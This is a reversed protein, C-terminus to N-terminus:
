STTHIGHLTVGDMIYFWFSQAETCRCTHTHCSSVQASAEQVATTQAGDLYLAVAEAVQDTVGKWVSPGQSVDALQMICHLVSYRMHQLAAPAM